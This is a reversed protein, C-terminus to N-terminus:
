NPLRHLRVGLPRAALKHATQFITPIESSYSFFLFISIFVSKPSISFESYIKAKELLITNKQVIIFYQNYPAVIIV